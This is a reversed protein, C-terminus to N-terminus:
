RGASAQPQTKVDASFLTAPGEVLKVSANPTLRSQGDSVISDGKALGAQIVAIDDNSYGVQM